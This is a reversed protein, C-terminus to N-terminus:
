LPINGHKKYPMLPEDKDELLELASAIRSRTEEPRIVEDIYGHEAAVYPNMFKDNYENILETRKADKDEAAEIAMRGIISVAGSAGM